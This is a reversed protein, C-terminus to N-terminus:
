VYNFGPMPFPIPFIASLVRGLDGKVSPAGPGGLVLPAAQSLGVELAEEGFRFTCVDAKQAFSLRRLEKAPLREALYPRLAKMLGPLDIVRHTSGLHGERVALGRQKLLHVFEADHGLAAIRIERVDTAAFVAPLADLLAGRSGAYEHIERLRGKPDDRWTLSLMAYALSQGDREVLWLEPSQCNWWFSLRSIFDAARVFRVSEAQHLPALLHWDDPSVRRVTLDASPSAFGREVRTHYLVGAPACHNRRYLSRDGSVILVKAGRDYMEKLALKLIAGAYGRKRCEPRTSVAGISAVKFECGYVSVRDYVVRIHSVPKGDEAIVLTDRRTVPKRLGAIMQERTYLKNLGFIEGIMEALGNIESLQVRRPAPV